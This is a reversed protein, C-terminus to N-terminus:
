NATPRTFGGVHSRMVQVRAGQEANHRLAERLVPGPEGYVDISITKALKLAEGIKEGVLPLYADMSAANTHVQVNSIEHGDESVHFHYAIVSDHAEAVEAFGKSLEKLREVQGENILFTTAFILPESM